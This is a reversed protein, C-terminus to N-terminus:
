DDAEWTIIQVDTKSRLHDELEDLKSAIITGQRASLPKNSVVTTLNDIIDTVNVKQTTINYILDENSKAYAVIESLQDLTSDDSDAVTNLRTTLEQLSMRLDYHANSDIDHQGIKEEATGYAEAGFMEATLNIDETLPLGNITRTNPVLDKLANTIVRNEVPNVSDYSLGGDIQVLDGPDVKYFSGDSGELAIGGDSDLKLQYTTNMDTNIYGKDNILESVHTPIKPGGDIDDYSHKHGIESYKKAINSLLRGVGDISLFKAM